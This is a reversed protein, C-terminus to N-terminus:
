LNHRFHIVDGEQVIYDKGELRLKGQSKSGNEGEYKVYDDFSIVEAKIFGKEFDTHIVGAAQPAKSGRRIPWSRVEKEGATFYTQLGLLSYSSRILKDLAPEIIELDSLFDKLEDEPLQSLESELSSCLPIIDFDQDEKLHDKLINLYEGEMNIENEDINAVYLIPKATLLHLEKMWKIFNDEESSFTRAPQMANLHEFLDKLFDRKQIEEKDAAKSKKEARILNNEVTQIDSLLLETNITDIDDAPNITNSVHTIDKNDFCRVVHIIADTDRINGLFKNGLGEGKSAGAVLGAIDVFEIYSPIITTTKTILALQNLRRDPVSVNGINPDITCFPYNEADVSGNSLANFLTSKGVNPLGVIGCRIGM